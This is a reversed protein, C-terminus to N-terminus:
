ATSFTLVSCFIEGAPLMRLELPLRPSPLLKSCISAQGEQHGAQNSQSSRGQRDSYPVLSRHSPVLPASASSAELKANSWRPIEVVMNLVSHQENAYLPVDHFWSIPAGDREVFVRYGLTNPAGVKRVTYSPAEMKSSPLAKRAGAPQKNSRAPAVGSSSLHGAIQASRSAIKRNNSPLHRASRTISRVPTSRTPLPVSPLCPRLPCHGLDLFVRSAGPPACAPGIVSRLPVARFM